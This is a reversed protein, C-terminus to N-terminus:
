MNQADIITVKDQVIDYIFTVRVRAGSKNIMIFVYYPENFSVQSISYETVETFDRRLAAEIDSLIPLDKLNSVPRLNDANFKPIDTFQQKTIQFEGKINQYVTISYRVVTTPYKVQVEILYNM